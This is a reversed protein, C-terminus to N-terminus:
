LMKEVTAFKYNALEALAMRVEVKDIGVCIKYYWDKGAQTKIFSDAKWGYEEDVVVEEKVRKLSAYISSIKNSLVDKGSQDVILVSNGNFLEELVEPYNKLIWVANDLIGSSIGWSAAVKKISLKGASWEKAASAGKQTTTLNRRTNVTKVFVRVDEESLGDDLEKYLINRQLLTLAKQRCRGDVVEGRWLVIPESQGHEKISNTLAVQETEIAMPVLGALKHNIPFAGETHNHIKITM